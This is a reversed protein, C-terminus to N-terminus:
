QTKEAPSKPAPLIDYDALADGIDCRIILEARSRSKVPRPVDTFHPLRGSGGSLWKGDVIRRVVVAESM